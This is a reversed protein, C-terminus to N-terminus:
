TFHSEAHLSTILQIEDMRCSHLSPLWRAQEGSGKSQLATWSWSFPHLSQVAPKIRFASSTEGNFQQLSANFELAEAWGHATEPSVSNEQARTWRLQRWLPARCCLRMNGNLAYPFFTGLEVSHVVHVDPVLTHLVLPLGRKQTFDKFEATEDESISFRPELASEFQCM